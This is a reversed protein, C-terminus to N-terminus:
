LIPCSLPSPCSCFYTAKASRLCASLGFDSLQSLVKVMLGPSINRSTSREHTFSNGSGSSSISGPSSVGSRVAFGSDSLAPLASRSRICFATHEKRRYNSFLCAEYIYSSDVDHPVSSGSKTMGMSAAM